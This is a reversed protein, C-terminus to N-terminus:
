PGVPTGQLHKAFSLADIRICVMHNFTDLLVKLSVNIVVNHGCKIVFLVQICVSNKQQNCCM